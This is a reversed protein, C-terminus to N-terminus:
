IRAGYKRLIKNFGGEDNLLMRAGRTVTGVSVKLEAAIDHQPMGKALRKVIQWRLAIEKQEAPSLLDSILDALLKKDGSAKAVLAVLEDGHEAKYKSQKM